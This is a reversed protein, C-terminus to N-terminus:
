GLGSIRKSKGDNQKIDTKDVKIEEGNNKKGRDTQRFRIKSRNVGCRM